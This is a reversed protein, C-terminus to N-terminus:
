GGAGGVKLWRVYTPNFYRTAFHIFLWVLLGLTWYWPVYRVVAQTLMPIDRKREIGAFLEYGLFLAIWLFWGMVGWTNWHKM